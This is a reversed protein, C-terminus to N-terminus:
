TMIPLRVTKVTARLSLWVLEQENTQHNGVTADTTTTTTTTLVGTRRSTCDDRTQFQIQLATAERLSKYSSSSNTIKASEEFCLLDLADRRVVLRRMVVAPIDRLLSQRSIGLTVYMQTSSSSSLQTGAAMTARSNENQQSSSSSPSFSIIHRILRSSLSHEEQVYQATGDNMSNNNVTSQPRHNVNFVSTARTEPMTIWFISRPRQFSTGWSLYVRQIDAGCSFIEHLDQLVTVLSDRVKAIHHNVRRQRQIHQRQQTKSQLKNSNDDITTTTTTTKTKSALIQHVPWPVIGRSYLIHAWIAKVATHLIWQTSPIREIFSDPIVFTTATTSVAAPTKERRPRRRQQRRRREPTSTKAAGTM